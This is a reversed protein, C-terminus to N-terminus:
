QCCHCPVGPLGRAVRARQMLRRQPRLTAAAGRLCGGGGQGGLRREGRKGGAWMGRDLRLLHGGRGWQEGLM